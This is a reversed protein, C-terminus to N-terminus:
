TSLAGQSSNSAAADLEWPVTVVTVNPIEALRAQVRRLAHNHLVAQWWHGVLYEPVYVSVCNSPASEQLSKVYEVIPPVVDRYPSYLIRLPMGIAHKRWQARIVREHDESRRVCLAQVSAHSDHAADRMAAVAPRTVEAVIVVAHTGLAAHKTSVVPECGAGGGPPLALRAAVASYHRQVAGMTIVLVAILGIAAWAGSDAKTVVVFVLLVAMLIASVRALRGKRLLARRQAARPSVRMQAAFHRALGAQGFTFAVFMGVLYMHVLETIDARTVTVVVTSAIGLAIIGNSYALRDGRSAFFRPVYSKVALVSALTPFGHFATSAAICLILATVVSVGVFVWTQHPAVARAVQGLVPVQHFQGSPLQGNVLLQEHPREVITVGSVYALWVIASFFAASVVGTLVLTRAANKVKPPQFTPVANTITKIGSIAVCGQSLARLVLVVGGLSALGSAALSDPSVEYHSSPAAQLTGTLAQLAGVLILIGVVAVFLVVPLTMVSTAQRVGRLNVVTLLAIIALAFYVHEGHEVGIAGAIFTAAQSTSVAVTLVYDLLLASGVLRGAASGLHSHAVAFDGGGAPFEHIIGYHAHLIVGMIVVVAVGVWPSVAIASTGALALAM